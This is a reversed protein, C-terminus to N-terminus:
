KHSDLLTNLGKSRRGDLGTQTISEQSEKSPKGEPMPSTSEPVMMTVEKMKKQLETLQLSIEWSNNGIIYEYFYAFAGEGSIGTFREIPIIPVSVTIEIALLSTLKSYFEDWKPHDLTIRTEKPSVYSKILDDKTSNYANLVLESQKLFQTLYYRAEIDKTFNLIGKIPSVPVERSPIFDINGILDSILGRLQSIKM